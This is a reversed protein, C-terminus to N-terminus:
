AILKTAIEKSHWAIGKIANLMSIYLSSASHNCVGGILREEHLTAYDLAKRVVERESEQVYRGLIENRALIIDTTPKMLDILRQMLFTVEETAKDSFLVGELIKRDILETIKEINERIRLLHVPISVYPVLISSEMTLKAIMNTVNHETNKIHCLRKRCDNLHESSNYIFSTQLLFLCDESNSGIEHLNMLTDKIDKRTEKMVALLSM